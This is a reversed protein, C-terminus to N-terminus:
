GAGGCDFWSYRYFVSVWLLHWGSPMDPSLRQLLSLEILDICLGILALPLVVLAVDGPTAPM